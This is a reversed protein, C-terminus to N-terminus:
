PGPLTIAFRSGAGLATDLSVTGGCAAVIARVHALGLGVGEAGRLRSGEITFFSDFVRQRVDPPIGVGTDAIDLCVGGQTPTVTVTVKGGKPTHRLANSILEEVARRLRIPDARAELVPFEATLSLDIGAAGAESVMAEVAEHAVDVINAPAVEVAFGGTELRAMDIVTGVLRELRRANRAVAELYTEQRPALPGAAGSLLLEIYGRISTLPTRLQHAAATLFDSQLHQASPECTDRQQTM